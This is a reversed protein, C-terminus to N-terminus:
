LMCNHNEIINACWLHDDNIIMLFCCVWPPYDCNIVNSIWSGLYYMAVISDFWQSCLTNNASIQLAYSVQWPFSQKLLWKPSPLWLSIFLYTHKQLIKWTSSNKNFRFFKNDVSAMMSPSQINTDLLCFVWTARIITSVRNRDAYCQIFFTGSIQITVTQYMSAFTDIPLPIRWSSAIYSSHLLAM